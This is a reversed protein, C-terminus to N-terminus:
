TEVAPSTYLVGGGMSNDLYSIYSGVNKNIARQHKIKTQYM